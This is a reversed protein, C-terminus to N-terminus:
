KKKTKCSTAIRPKSDFTKGNQARMKVIAQNATKCINASNVLLGKKKGSNLSIIAKSVPADPVTAFTTRIRSQESGKKHVADVFGVLVFRVQGNLDAVVDPLEREGGNSRFYIPGELPNDLLPSFARMKGLVSSPPCAGANFQPRTCPNSVHAQDLFITPPLAVSTRAINAQGPPQTLVAKFAPHGARKTAGKLSLQLKPSFELGKCSGVQFRNTLPAVAGATSIANATIAKVECSTPNLTFNARDTRVAVSRVDLPFGHIITPLPDSKVTVKATSENVYLGARVVVVGLDYPGAVAPTIIALSLPAGKYPGALYAKGGVYYPTPGAGAGATVSGVESAAPCSPAAIEAAGQGVGSRAAAAAIAQESCYPVGALKAALGEPLTTELGSLRQEGDQRSLKFVFPSYAGALPATTGASLSPSFPLQSETQACPAGGSGQTITFPASKVVETEPDAFTFLSATTTYTGCTQPTILPARPGERLRVEFSSYPVPPLGEVISTLQGTVPDPRVEVAQKVLIGREPAKAILYLAILSNFPNDHPAAVYLSGEIAEKLLPSSATLTGVKSATPCGQGPGFIDTAAKYQAPTCAALGNVVAPNATLGAPLRLVTTEPETETVAGEASNLLGKNPLQLEFGLGAPSEAQTTSPGSLVSPSFPVAECATLPQPNNAQDRLIASEGVFFGPALKSDIEVNVEPPFDCSTPMTLFPTPPADSELGGDPGREPDHDPDSPTGWITATVSSAELPLNPAEIHVAYGEEANVTASLLATFGEVSFGLQAVVGPPPALNYIPGIAESNLSPLIARVVGVQTNVACKPLGGEFSQRPCEDVAQPNGFFGPSLETIADRMEGGQTSGDPETNLEFHVTFAFPHGGAQTAVTGDRNEATVTTTGPVLGFDAQAAAPAALLIAALAFLITTRRIVQWGRAQAKQLLAQAEKAEEKRV